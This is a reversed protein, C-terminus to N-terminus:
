IKVCKVKLKKRPNKLLRQWNKVVCVNSRAIIVIKVNKRGVAIHPFEFKWMKGLECLLLLRGFDSQGEIELSIKIKEM